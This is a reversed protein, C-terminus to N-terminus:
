VTEHDTRKQAPSEDASEDRNGIESDDDTQLDALLQDLTPVPKSVRQLGLLRDLSAATAILSQLTTLWRERLKNTRPDVIGRQELLADIQMIRRQLRGRNEITIRRRTHLEGLNGGEDSECGSMFADLERRLFEYPAPLTNERDATTHLATTTAAGIAGAPLKLFRGTRVDRPQRVAVAPAGVSARDEAAHQVPAQVSTGMSARPGASDESDNASEREEASPANAGAALGEGTRATMGRSVDPASEKM